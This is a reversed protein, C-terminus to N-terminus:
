PVRRRGCCQPSSAVQSEAASAAAKSAPGTARPQPRIARRAAAPRGAAAPWGPRTTAAPLREPGSGEGRVVARHGGHGPGPDRRAPQDGEPARHRRHRGVQACRAPSRSATPMPSAGIPRCPVKLRQSEGAATVSNAWRRPRRVDLRDARVASSPHYASSSNARNATSARRRCTRRGCATVPRSHPLAGAARRCPTVM